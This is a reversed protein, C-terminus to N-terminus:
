PSPFDQDCPAAFRVNQESAGARPAISRDAVIGCVMTASIGSLDPKQASANPGGCCTRRGDVVATLMTERDRDTFM